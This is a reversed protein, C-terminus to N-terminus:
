VCGPGVCPVWLQGAARTTDMIQRWNASTAGYSAGDSAFYSYAGDFGGQVLEDGDKRDLLLGIVFADNRSGRVTIRGEATLVDAWASPSLHYSDYVFVVPLAEGGGTRRRRWLAQHDGYAAAIYALDAAVAAADRGEYPELHLAILMGSAVAADLIRNFADGTVIGQSDGRGVGPRGWWSVLAAGIGARKMEIFQEAIVQPDRSSYPGRAPYFTAHIDHPARFSIGEGAAYTAQIYPTWHPLVSHNWHSWRGDVAPTGYWLYFAAVALPQEEPSAASLCALLVLLRLM